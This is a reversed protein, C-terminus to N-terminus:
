EKVNKTFIGAQPKGAFPKPACYPQKPKQKFVRNKIVGYKQDFRSPLLSQRKAKLLAAIDKQMTKRALNFRAAGNNYYRMIRWVALWKKATNNLHAAKKSATPRM